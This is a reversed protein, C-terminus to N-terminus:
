AAQLALGRIARRFLKSVLERESRASGGITLEQGAAAPRKALGIWRVGDREIDVSWGLLRLWGLLAVGEREAMTQVAMVAGKQLRQIRGGECCAEWSVAQDM